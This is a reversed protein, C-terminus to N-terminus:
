FVEWNSTGDSVYTIGEREGSQVFTAVGDITDSGDPTVTADNTATNGATGFSMKVLVKQGKNTTAVVPLNVIITNSTTDVRVLEDIAASVPTSTQVSTVTLTGAISAGPSQSTDILVAQWNLNTAAKGTVQVDIATGNVVFTADLVTDSEDTFDDQVTGLVVNGSAVRHAKVTREYSNRITNSDDRADVYVKFTRVSSVSLTKSIIAKPTANATTTTQREGVGVSTTEWTPTAGTGKSTIVQGSTGATANILWGGDTDIELRTSLANLSTGTSGSAATKVIFSGGDGTGTGQGGAITLSAGAIDTGLGGSGQISGAPPTASTKPGIYPVGANDLTFLVAASSDQVELLSATQSSSGKILVGRRDAAGTTILLGDTTPAVGLGLSSLQISDSTATRTNQGNVSKLPQVM